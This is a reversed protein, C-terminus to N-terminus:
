RNKGCVEASYTLFVKGEGTESRSGVAFAEPGTETLKISLNLEGDARGVCGRVIRTQRGVRLTPAFAFRITRFEAYSSTMQPIKM